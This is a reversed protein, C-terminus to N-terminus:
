HCFIDLIVMTIQHQFKISQTSMEERDNEREKMLREIHNTKEQLIEQPFKLLLSDTLM